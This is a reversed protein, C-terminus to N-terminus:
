SQYTRELNSYLAWSTLQAADEAQIRVYKCNSRLMRDQSLKAIYEIGERDRPGSDIIVRAVPLSKRIDDTNDYYFDNM